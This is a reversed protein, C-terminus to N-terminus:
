QGYAIWSARAATGGGVNTGGGLRNLSTTRTGSTGTVWINVKVTNGIAPYSGGAAGTISGVIARGPTYCQGFVISHVSRLGFSGAPLARTAGTLNIDGETRTMVKDGGSRRNIDRITIQAM